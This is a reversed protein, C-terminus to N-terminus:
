EHPMEYFVHNGIRGVMEFRRTWSPMRRIANPNLFHTARTGLADIEGSLIGRALELALEWSDTERPTHNLITHTWSFQRRQYVVSCIDNPYRPHNVRNLTVEAVMIMGDISEGRAEHYMNLALVEVQRDFNCDAFVPTAMAIVAATLLPKM